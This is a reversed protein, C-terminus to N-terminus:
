MPNLSTESRARSAPPRRSILVPGPRPATTRRSIIAHDPDQHHIVVRHDSGAKPHEEGLRGVHGNDALQAVAVGHQGNDLPLSRVDDEHVQGHRPDVPNRRGSGDCSGM